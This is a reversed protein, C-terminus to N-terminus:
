PLRQLFGPESRPRGVLPWAHRGLIVTLLDGGRANVLRGVVLILALVFGVGFGGLHAWHAVGDEVGRLEYFVDFGIKFLVLWFGRVSWMALSLHLRLIFIWRVWLALHVDNVPFFVLYMGALGMIAGSAGIMATPPQDAVFAMHTLAAGVALVPYILLTLVNGILANVRSGLVILFILNGVLHMPGAHLFAHTVLQSFRYSGAYQQEPSLSKHAALLLKDGKSLPEESGGSAANSKGPGLIQDLEEPTLNAEELANVNDFFAKSDGYNTLGYFYFLTAPSPDAEGGWLMYNKVGSMDASPRCAYGLFVFSTVVTVLAIGRITHPKRTGFAESAIPYFGTWFVWSVIRIITESTAYIANLHTDQSTILSRGTKIDIGCETCIKARRPLEKHCSPCVPRKGKGADEEEDEVVESPKPALEILDAAADAEEEQKALLSILNNSGEDADPPLSLATDVPPREEHDDPDAPAAEPQAPPSSAKPAKKTGAVAVCKLEYEGIQIRDGDTLDQQDVREGNVFLGNTSGRDEIRWGSVTRILQCHQRSVRDGQLMLDNDARKGIDIPGRGALLILEDKRQPGRRITLIGRISRADSGDGHAIVRLASKCAPCGAARGLRSKPFAFRKGCRCAIKITGANAPQSAVLTGDRVAPPV